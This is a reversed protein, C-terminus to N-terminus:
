FSLRSVNLLCVLRNVFEPQESIESLYFFCDVCDYGHYHFAHLKEM